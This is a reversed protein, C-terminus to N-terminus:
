KHNHHKMHGTNKEGHHHHMRNGEMMEQHHKEAAKMLDKTSEGEIDSQSDEIDSEQLQHMAHMRGMSTGCDRAEQMTEKTSQYIQMNQMMEQHHSLKDIMQTSTEEDSSAVTIYVEESETITLIEEIVEEFNKNTVNIEETSLEGNEDYKVVDVVRHFRNFYIEISSTSDISVASIPQQYIFSGLIMFILALSLAFGIRKKCIKKKTTQKEDHNQVYRIVHDETKEKLEKDATVSDFAEKIKKDM